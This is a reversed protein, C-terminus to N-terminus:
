PDPNIRAWGWAQSGERLQPENYCLLSLLSGARTGNQQAIEDLM